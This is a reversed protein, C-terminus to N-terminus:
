FICTCIQHLLFNAMIAILTPSIVVTTGRIVRRSNSSGFSCAIDAVCFRQLLFGKCSCWKEHCNPSHQSSACAQSRVRRLSHALSGCPSHASMNPKDERHDKEYTESAFETSKAREGM